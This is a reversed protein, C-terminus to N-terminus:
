RFDKSSFYKPFDFSIKIIEEAIKIAEEITQFSDIFTNKFLGIKYLKYPYSGHPEYNIKLNMKNLGNM